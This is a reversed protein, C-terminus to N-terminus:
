SSVMNEVNAPYPDFFSKDRLLLFRRLKQTSIRFNNNHKSYYLHLIELSAM